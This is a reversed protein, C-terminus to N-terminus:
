SAGNGPTRNSRIYLYLASLIVVVWGFPGLTAFILIGLVLCILTLLPDRIMEFEGIVTIVPM